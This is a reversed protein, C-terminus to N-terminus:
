LDCVVRRKAKRDSLVFGADSVVVHLSPNHSLELLDEPGLEKVPDVFNDDEM